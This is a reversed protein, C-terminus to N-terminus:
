AKLASMQQIAAKLKELDVPKILHRSFGAAESQRIDEDMGFGSVAIGKLAYRGKLVRMVDNGSGDPLGLDSIVLDLEEHQGIELADKVTSATRVNHGLYMLLKTMLKLTGQHDEVLLIRLPTQEVPSPARRIPRAPQVSVVPFEVIFRAGKNRGASEAHITGGHAEVLSKTITLGLGLGGFERKLSSDGQVFANFMRPLVDPEIGVGFDEVEVRLSGEPVNSSRVIIPKGPPSFKAANSLLNWFIQQLRAPDARVSHRRADLEVTLDQIREACCIDMASRLLLHANAVEFNLLLKGRTIRTLDLLDDILRAELEVHRRITQIDEQVEDSLQHRNELLSVTLLVPTLPTRLEHSLIALFQDKARNASEATDRAQQLSQEAHKAADIDTCTGYWRIIKGADDRVPLARGLFWRYGDMSCDRFRYEVEFPIGAHVSASWSAAYKPLDDPHIMAQWDHARPEDAPMRTFEYWQRNFYDITGDPRAAWVIQPMADALERLRAENQRSLEAAVRAEALERARAFIEAEMEGVRRNLEEAHRDKEAQRSKISIFETVDEVRHIIHTVKGERDLLPSNVPSWYRVEFGGGEADPRRIDYKQVAMTDSRATEVVRTLSARLNRTGDAAADNPNDPFVDFIGRGLIQERVTKTARLYANSVAVIEFNPTLILYLGPVSEFLARFDIPHSPIEHEM